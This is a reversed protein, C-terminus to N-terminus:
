FEVLEKIGDGLIKQVDALMVDIKMECELLNRIKDKQIIISYLNQMEMEDDKSMSEGNLYRIQLTKQKEKFDKLMHYGQEDERLSEKLTVYTKFEETERFARVLEHIKDYFNM